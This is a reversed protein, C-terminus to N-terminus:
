SYAGLDGPIEAVVGLLQREYEEIFHDVQVQVPSEAMVLGCTPENRVLDSAVDGRYAKISNDWHDIGGLYTYEWLNCISTQRTKFM